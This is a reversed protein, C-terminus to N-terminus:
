SERPITSRAPVGSTHASCRGTLTRRSTERKGSIVLASDLPSLRFNRLIRAALGPTNELFMAQRQGNSGVVQTHFTMSLEAIPHFGPYSGYRPFMEELAIRSHGTGFLHVLGDSSIAEACREAAASIAGMQSQEIRELM